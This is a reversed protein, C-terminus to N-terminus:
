FFLELVEKLAEKIYGQKELVIKEKDKLQSIACLGVRNAIIVDCDILMDIRKEIKQTNDCIDKDDEDFERLCVLDCRGDDFLDLILFSESNGFHRNIVKGDTTAIALRKKKMFVDGCM